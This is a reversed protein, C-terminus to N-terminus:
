LCVHFKFLLFSGCFFCRRPITLLINSSTKFMNVTESFHFSEYAVIRVSLCVHVNKVTLQKAYLKLPETITDQQCIESFSIGVHVGM